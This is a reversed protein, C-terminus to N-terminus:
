PFSSRITMWSRREEDREMKETLVILQDFLWADFLNLQYAKMVTAYAEEYLAADSYSAVLLKRIERDLPDLSVIMKWHERAIEWQGSAAGVGALAKLYKSNRYNTLANLTGLIDLSEQHEGMDALVLAYNYLLRYDSPFRELLPAYVQTAQSFNGSRVYGGAESIAADVQRRSAAETSACGLLLGIVLVVAVIHATQHCDSIRM